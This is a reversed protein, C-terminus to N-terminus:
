AEVALIDEYKVIAEDDRGSPTEFAPARPALVVRDGEKLDSVGAGVALVLWMATEPDTPLYIEREKRKVQRVWVRERRPRIKM